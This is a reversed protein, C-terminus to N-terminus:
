SPDGQKEQEEEKEQQKKEQQKKKEEEDDPILKLLLEKYQTLINTRQLYKKLNQAYTKNLININNKEIKFEFSKKITIMTTSENEFQLNFQEFKINTEKMNKEKMSQLFKGLQENAHILIDLPDSDNGIKKAYQPQSTTNSIMNSLSGGETM